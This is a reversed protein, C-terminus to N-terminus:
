DNGLLTDHGFHEDAKGHVARDALLFPGGLPGFALKQIREIIVFRNAGVGLAMVPVPVQGLGFTFLERWLDAGLTGRGVGSLARFVGQTSRTKTMPVCFGPALMVALITGGSRRGTGDM